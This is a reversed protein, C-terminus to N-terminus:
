LHYHPNSVSTHTSCCAHIDSARGGEIRSENSSSSRASRQNQEPNSNVSHETHLSSHHPDSSPALVVLSNSYPQPRQFHPWIGMCGTSTTKKRKVIYFLVGIGISVIFISVGVSIGIIVRRNKPPSDRSDNTSNGTEYPPKETQSPLSGAPSTSNKKGLNWNEFIAQAENSAWTAPYRSRILDSEPM